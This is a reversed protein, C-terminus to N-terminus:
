NQCIGLNVFLQLGPFSDFHYAEWVWACRPSIDKDEICGKEIHSANLIMCLFFFIGKLITKTCSPAEEPVFVIRGTVWAGNWCLELTGTNGNPLVCHALVLLCCFHAM